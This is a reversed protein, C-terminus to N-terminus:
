DSARFCCRSYLRNVVNLLITITFIGM